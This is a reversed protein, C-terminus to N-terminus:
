AVLKMRFWFIMIYKSLECKLIWKFFNNQFRDLQKQKADCWFHFVLTLMKTVNQTKTITFTFIRRLCSFFQTGHISFIHQTFALTLISKQFKTKRTMEIEFICWTGFFESLCNLSIFANTSASRRTVVRFIASLNFKDFEAMWSCKFRSPKTEFNSIQTGCTRVSFSKIRRTEM